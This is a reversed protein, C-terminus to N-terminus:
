NVEGPTDDSCLEVRHFKGTTLIGSQCHSLDGPWFDARISKICTQLTLNERMDIIVEHFFKVELFGFIEFSLSKM